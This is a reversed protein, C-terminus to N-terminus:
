ILQKNCRRRAVRRRQSWTPSFTSTWSSSFYLCSTVSTSELLVFLRPSANTSCSTHVKLCWAPSNFWKCWPWTPSGGFLCIRELPHTKPTCVSLTTLTCWPTFSDMWFLPWTFMQTMTCMLTSGTSSFSPLITIFMFFHCSGGSREWFLSSPIGFTGSRPFTFCGCFILWQHTPKTTNRAPYSLTITAILWCCHRSPWTHVFCSRLFMTCFSSRILTLPHLAIMRWSRQDSLLLYSILLRLVLHVQSTLWPFIRYKSSLFTTTTLFANNERWIESFWKHYQKWVKTYGGFKGEPDCWAIISDGIENLADMISGKSKHTSLLLIFIWNSEHHSAPFKFAMMMEWASTRGVKIAGNRTADRRALFLLSLFLWSKPSTM